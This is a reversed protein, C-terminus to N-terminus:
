LAVTTILIGLVVFGFPRYPYEGAGTIGFRRGLLEPADVHAIGRRGIFAPNRFLLREIAVAAALTVIAVQIGRIRLAPLSVLVGITTTAAVAVIASIPFPLHWITGARAL